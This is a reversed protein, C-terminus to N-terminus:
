RLSYPSPSKIEIFVFFLAVLGSGIDVPHPSPDLFLKKPIISTSTLQFIEAGGSYNGAVGFIIGFVWVCQLWYTRGTNQNNGCVFRLLFFCLFVRDAHWGQAASLCALWCDFSCYFFIM